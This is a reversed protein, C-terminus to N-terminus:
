RPAFCLDKIPYGFAFRIGLNSGYEGQAGARNFFVHLMNERLEADLSAGGSGAECEFDRPGTTLPAAGV